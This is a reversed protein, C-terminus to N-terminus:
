QKWLKPPLHHNATVTRAISVGYAYRHPRSATATVDGGAVVTDLSCTPQHSSALLLADQPGLLLPFIDVISGM